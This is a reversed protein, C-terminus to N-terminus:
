ERDGLRFIDEDSWEKAVKAVCLTTYDGAYCDASNSYYVWYIGTNIIMKQCMLCPLGLFRQATRVDYGYIYMDGGYISVGSRAANIIANAEAHVSRCMEYREGSPIDHENRYCSDRELCDKVRRPAGCYGSSVVQENLVIVAGYRRRLCTARESVARAINLYYETKSPRM